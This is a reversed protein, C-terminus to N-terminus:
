PARLWIIPLEVKFSMPGITCHRHSSLSYRSWLFCSLSRINVVEHFLFFLAWQSSSSRLKIDWFSELSLSWCWFEPLGNRKNAAQAAWVRSNCLAVDTGDLNWWKFSKCFRLSSDAKAIFGGSSSLVKGFQFSGGAKRQRRLRHFYWELYNSFFSISSFKFSILTKEILFNCISKCVCYIFGILSNIRHGLAESLSLLRGCAIIFARVPLKAIVFDPVSFGFPM